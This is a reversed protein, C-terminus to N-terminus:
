FGYRANIQITGMGRFSIINDSAKVFPVIGLELFPALVTGNYLSCCHVVSDHALSGEANVQESSLLTNTSHSLSVDPCCRHGAASAGSSTALGSYSQRHGGAPSPRVAEACNRRMGCFNSCCFDQEEGAYCGGMKCGNRAKAQNM